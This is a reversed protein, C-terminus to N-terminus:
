LCLSLLPSNTGSPKMERITLPKVDTIAYLFGHMCRCVHVSVSLAHGVLCFRMFM